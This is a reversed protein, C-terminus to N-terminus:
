VVGLVGSHERGGGLALALALALGLGEVAGLMSPM